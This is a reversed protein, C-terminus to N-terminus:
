ASAKMPHVPALDDAEVPLMDEVMPALGMAAEISPGQQRDLLQQRYFTAAVQPSHGCWLACVDSPIEMSACYSVFNKRLKQPSVHCEGKLKSDKLVCMWGSKPYVPAPLKGNPLVYERAEDEHRWAKLLKLLTPAVDGEPAGTLSLIRKRGTKPALITIRGKTLDVDKWKMGLCEGLRAGTLACLLFLKSVPTEPASPPAQKFNQIRGARAGKRIKRTVDVSFGEAERKLAARLFTTLTDPALAFGEAPSVSGAKLAPAITRAFNRFMPPDQADLWRLACRLNRVEAAITAESRDKDAYDLRYEQILAKTLEGTLVNEHGNNKLWKEFRDITKGLLKRSTTSMGDKRAKPNNKRVKVRKDCWKLYRKMALTLRTKYAAGGGRDDAAVAERKETLSYTKLLEARAERTTAGEATCSKRRQVAPYSTYDWYFIYWAGRWMKLRAPLGKHEM